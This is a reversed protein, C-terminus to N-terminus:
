KHKIQPRTLLAHLTERLDNPRAPQPAYIMRLGTLIGKRIEHDLEYRVMQEEYRLSLATLAMYHRHDEREKARAYEVQIQFLDSSPDSYLDIWQEDVFLLNAM